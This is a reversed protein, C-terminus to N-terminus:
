AAKLAIKAGLYALKKDLAQYGRKFHHVGTMITKGHAALGALVLSCSGRIDGAIVQAGYLAEVGLIRAKDGEVKINAGMKQLERVHLMRNEYVTEHIVSQGEALCLAAMMPAQLDTPFGPYPSTIFSVARPHPTAVLSIGKGQNMGMRVHHGMEELKLLFVDLVSPDANPLDIQGGTIAAALLLSGAELRDNMITHEIPQLSTTGQIVLTMPPEITIQAGMQRLVTILDLVEPELAAHIIRTTGPIAAAAMMLNETAGVSPYDLVLTRPALSPAHATVMDGEVHVTAGMRVFNKLHIDIPRAGIQDGGPMAIEARTFRALLPGLVLASARIKRMIEARVSYRNITSTNVILQQKEPYFQVQAGLDMLLAMMQHVDDSDPVNNLISTGDTLILSAIIVLVANKAGVLEVEGALPPSQEVVLYSEAPLPQEPLLQQSPIIAEDRIITM